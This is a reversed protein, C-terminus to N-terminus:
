TVMHPSNWSNPIRILICVSTTLVIEQIELGNIRPSIGNRIIEELRLKEQDAIINSLGTVGVPYGDTEEIGFILDGGSANAFSSVDALFEKKDGDSNGPLESKYEIAKSEPVSNTILSELDEQTISLIEKAIGLM